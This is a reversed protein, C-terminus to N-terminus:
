EKAAAAELKKFEAHRQAFKAGAAVLLADVDVDYKTCVRLLNAEARVDTMFVDGM